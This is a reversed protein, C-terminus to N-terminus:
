PIWNLVYVSGSCLHNYNDHIEGVNLNIDPGYNFNIDAAVIVSEGELNGLTTKRGLKFLELTAKDFTIKYIKPNKKLFDFCNERWANVEIRNLNGTFTTKSLLENHMYIPTPLNNNVKDLKISTNAIPELMYLDGSSNDEYEFKDCLVGKIFNNSFYPEIYKPNSMKYSTNQIFANVSDSVYHISDSNDLDIAILESITGSVVSINDGASISHFVEDIGFLTPYTSIRDSNIYKVLYDLDSLGNYTFDFYSNVSRSIHKLSTLIGLSTGYKKVLFDTLKNYIEINSVYDGNSTITYFTCSNVLNYTLYSDLLLHIKKFNINNKAKLHTPVEQSSKIKYTNKYVETNNISFTIELLVLINSLYHLEDENPSLLILENIPVCNTDFINKSVNFGLVRDNKFVRCDKLDIKDSTPLTLDPILSVEISYNSYNISTM